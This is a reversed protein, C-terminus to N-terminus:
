DPEPPPLGSTRYRHGLRSTWEYDGGPLRRYTWGHKHKGTCHDYRCIPAQGDVSTESVEAWPTIHDLDCDQAPTLCGPYICTADRAHIARKQTTNARRKRTVGNALLMGTEPDTAAWRWESDPQAEAVQRAIDAVVPGYGALDGPEETLRALTELDVHINVTGRGTKPHDARGCLLDIAVDARIQDISRTEGHGSLSRAITDVRNFAEAARDPAAGLLHIDVTGDVTLESVLRREDFSNRYRSEAEKPDVQLCARRVRARLQGTTCRSAAEIVRDVVANADPASLHATGDVLLRARRLDISGGDLARGVAPVRHNLDRALEVELAATRRTLHLAARIEFAVAEDALELDDEELSFFDAIGSMDSYLGAQVHSVLRQRATLVTVRDHGSLRSVDISALFAALVPGPRIGALGPPIATFGTEPPLDLLEWENPSLDLEDVSPPPAQFVESEFMHEGM